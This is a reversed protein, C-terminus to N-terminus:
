RFWNRITGIWTTNDYKVRSQYSLDPKKKPDQQPPMNRIQQTSSKTFSIEVKYNGPKFYADSVYKPPQTQKGTEDEMDLIRTIKKSIQEYPASSLDLSKQLERKMEEKSHYWDGIPEDKREHTRGFPGSGQPNVEGRIVRSDDRYAPIYSADQGRKEKIKKEHARNQETGHYAIPTSKPHLVNIVDQSFGMKQLSQPTKYHPLRVENGKPQHQTPIQKRQQATEDAMRKRQAIERYQRAKEAQAKQLQERRQQPISDNRAKIRQQAQKPTEKVIKKAQFTVGCVDTLKKQNQTTM